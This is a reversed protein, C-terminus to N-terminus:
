VGSPLYAMVEGKMIIRMTRIVSTRLIDATATVEAEVAMIGAPHHILVEGVKEFSCIGSAITGEICCAAALAMSSTVPAARHPRDSSVYRATIGTLGNQTPSIIIVDPINARVFRAENEDQCFKMMLSAKIRLETMTETYTKDTVLTRYDEDGRIGAEKARIIVCPVTVDLLTAQFQRGDDLMILDNRNGTPFLGRSMSSAPDIFSLRVPFHKGPVGSIAVLEHQEAESNFESVIIKRTNVNYIRVEQAGSEACAWGQSAAYPGVSSSINGCNADILVDGTVPDIQFFFYDVDADSRSSRSVVAVKSLSTIGGGLGDLQNGDPDPSGLVAQFLTKWLAMDDPLDERNFIVARSTGGRVYTAPISLMKCTM